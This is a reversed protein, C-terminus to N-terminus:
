TIPVNLFQAALGRSRASKKKALVFLVTILALAVAFPILWAPNRSLYAAEIGLLM